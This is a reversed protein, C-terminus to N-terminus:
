SVWLSHAGHQHAHPTPSRPLLAGPQVAPPTAGTEGGPWAPEPGPRLRRLWISGTPERLQVNPRSAGRDSPLSAPAHVLKKVGKRTWSGPERSGEVKGPGLSRPQRSIGGRGPSRPGSGPDSSTPAPSVACLLWSGQAQPSRPASAPCHADSTFAATARQLSATRQGRREAKRGPQLSGTHVHCVPAREQGASAGPPGAPQPGLEEKGGQGKAGATQAPCPRCPQRRRGQGSRLAACGLLGPSQASGGRPGLGRPSFAWRLSLDCPGWM